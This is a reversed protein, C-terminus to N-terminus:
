DLRAGLRSHDGRLVLHVLHVLHVLGVRGLADAIIVDAIIM